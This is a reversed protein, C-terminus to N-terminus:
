QPLRRSDRHWGSTFSDPTVPRTARNRSLHALAAVAALDRGDEAPPTDLLPRRSFETSYSGEVFETDGALARLLGLNTAVGSIAFEELSRRARNLCEERTAGWVTLKALLSDYRVPVEAGAYAYSDVRVNPGGPTRFRTIHGPSPLFGHWPDEANIRFFMGVGSLRVDAQTFGLPQGAAIRLQERVVDIRTVMETVPHEVQLRPKVETFRANGDGDVVFEVTCAGRCNFLRAIGIAAEWIAERQAQSLRPAPSEAVINRTNRQISADREGMHIIGGHNDALIPVEIYRSPLVAPELYVLPTGYVSQAAASSRRVVAMLQDPERVVHTGRGRGGAYAKVVLPYGIAAAEAAIADAEEPTFSRSSPSTTAFGAAHARAIADIKTRVQELCGSGPGVMVVGAAECARVFELSESIFGYGPHIADAGCNAAIAVMADVAHYGDVAEIPYAEEALRVHLAGEDGPEYVTAAVIGLDRCARVVRVAIEGRNAILVKKFM